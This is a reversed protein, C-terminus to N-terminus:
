RDGERGGDGRRNRYRWEGGVEVGRGKGRRGEEVVDMEEVM